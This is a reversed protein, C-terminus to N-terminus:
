EFNMGFPSSFAEERGDMNAVLSQNDNFNEYLETTDVLELITHLCPWWAGRYSREDQSVPTRFM